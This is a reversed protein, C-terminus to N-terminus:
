ASHKDHPTLWRWDGNGFRRSAATQASCRTHPVPVNAITTLAKDRDASNGGRCLNYTGDPPYAGVVLLDSSGSLRQHGTGAPLVAVDGAAFDFTEGSPGGLQVRATGRAIGLAEHIMSHYHVFPYIGNRWQGHGWGNQAFLTEIARAPDNGGFDVAAKYVLAPLAPNNPVKGDDKFM